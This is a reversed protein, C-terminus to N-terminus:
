MLPLIGQTVSKMPLWGISHCCIIHCTMEYECQSYYRFAYLGFCSLLTAEPRADEALTINDRTIVPIPQFCERGGSTGQDHM